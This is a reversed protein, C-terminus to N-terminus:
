TRKLKQKAYLPSTLADEPAMNARYLRNFLTRPPIGYEIAWDTVIQTKGFATVLKNNGKNRAQERRTSWKCNEKCYPGDNDLRDLTGGWPPNGM